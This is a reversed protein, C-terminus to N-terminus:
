SMVNSDEDSELFRLSADGEDEIPGAADEPEIELFPFDRTGETLALNELADEVFDILEDDESEDILSALTVEVDEGGIQSLSWIAAMYVDSAEEEDLLKLLLPRAEEIRLTGAAECAAVRVEEDPSTLAEIVQDNWRSDGSREVATLASAVWRPDPHALYRSILEAAEPRSSFGLSELSARGLEVPTDGHLAALLADEIRALVRPDLEELEGLEVFIGLTRAAQVRPDLDPDNALIGELLAADAARQSEALLRICAARALPDPDTVGARAFDEFSLRTDEEFLEAMRTAAARRREPAMEWWVPLIAKLAPGDIDSFDRLIPDTLQMEPDRLAKALTPTASPESM